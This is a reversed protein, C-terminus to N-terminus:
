RRDEVSKKLQKKERMRWFSHVESFKVNTRAPRHPPARIPSTNVSAPASLAVSSGNELSRSNVEAFQKQERGSQMEEKGEASKSTGASTSGGDFLRQILSHVTGARAMSKSKRGFVSKNKAGSAACDVSKLRGAQRGSHSLKQAASRSSSSDAVLLVTHHRTKDSTKTCDIPRATPSTSTRVLFVSKRHANDATGSVNPQHDRLGTDRSELVAAQGSHGGKVLPHINLESKAITKSKGHQKQSTEGSLRSEWFKKIDSFRM